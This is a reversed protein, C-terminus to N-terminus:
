GSLQSYDDGSHIPTVAHLACGFEEKSSSPYSMVAQLYAHCKTGAWNYSRLWRYHTVLMLSWRSAVSRQHQLHLAAVCVHLIGCLM